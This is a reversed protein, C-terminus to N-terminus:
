QSLTFSVMLAGLCSELKNFLPQFNEARLFSESVVAVVIGPHSLCHQPKVLCQPITTSPFPFPTHKFEEKLLETQYQPWCVCLLLTGDLPLSQINLFGQSDMYHFHSLADQTASLLIICIGSRHFIYGLSYCLQLPLSMQIGPGKGAPQSM